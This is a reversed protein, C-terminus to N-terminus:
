SAFKTKSQQRLIKTAQRREKELLEQQESEFALHTIQGRRKSTRTPKVGRSVALLREVEEKKAASWSNAHLSSGDIEVVEAFRDVEELDRQWQVSPTPLGAVLVSSPTKQLPSEEWPARSGFQPPSEYNPYQVSLPPYNDSAYAFPPYAQPGPTLIEPPLQPGPPPGLHFFPQSGGTKEQSAKTITMQEKGRGERSEVKLQGVSEKRSGGISSEMGNSKSGTNGPVPNVKPRILIPKEKSGPIQNKPEPLVENLSMSQQSLKPKKSQPEEVPPASKIKKIPVTFKVINPKVSPLTLTPFGPTEDSPPPPLNSPHSKKPTEEEDDSASGYGSVLM